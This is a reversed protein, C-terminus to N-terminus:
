LTNQKQYDSPDEYRSGNDICKIGVQLPTHHLFCNPRFEWGAGGLIRCIGQELRLEIELANDICCRGFFSVTYTNM